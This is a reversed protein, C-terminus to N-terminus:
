ILSYGTTIPKSGDILWRRSGGVKGRYIQMWENSDVNFSSLRNIFWNSFINSIFLPIIKIIYKYTKNRKTTSKTLFFM